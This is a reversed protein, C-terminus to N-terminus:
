QGQVLSQRSRASAADLAESAAVMLADEDQIPGVPEGNPTDPANIWWQGAIQRIRVHHGFRSLFLQGGQQRPSLGAQFAATVLASLM